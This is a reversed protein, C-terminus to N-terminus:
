SAGLPSQGSPQQREEIPVGFFTMPGEPQKNVPFTRIPQWESDPTSRASIVFKTSKTVLLAIPPLPLCQVQREFTEAFTIGLEMGVHLSNGDVSEVQVYLRAAGHASGIGVLLVSLNVTTPFAPVSIGESFVGILLFKGNDERRIEDCIVAATVDFRVTAENM